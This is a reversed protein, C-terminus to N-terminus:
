ICLSIFIFIFIHTTHTTHTLHSLSLLIFIRPQYTSTSTHPEPDITTIVNTELAVTGKKDDEIMRQREMQQQSHQHSHQQQSNRKNRKMHILILVIIVAGIVAILVSLGVFGGVIVVVDCIV